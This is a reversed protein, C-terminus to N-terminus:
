PTLTRGVRVGYGLSRAVAGGAGRVASRVTSPVDYWSGGRVMRISCDGSTWASGDAPAGDYNGHYCDQVLEWANGVTDYLGFANSKYSGVPATKEGWQSGCRFCNANNTGIEDGWFYATTSGARAAYEWEAESLLRYTKGTMRSLWAVYTQADEWSVNIVPQKGGQFPRAASAAIGAMENRIRPDCDSKACADWEDFTLEFKAAAFPRAITVKHQPLENDDGQGVPSGMMFSGAPVMVMEPCDTCEKFIDMPKLAREQASKLVHGNVLMYIREKLWVEQWWGLLGSAFVVAVAGALAMTRRRRWTAGRRSEAIFTVAEETPEPASHPRAVIWREAEELLPSRLLMGRRHPRGATAWRRAMEGYESHKRIWDLDVQLAAALHDATADFRAADDFFIYHLSRLAEPVADSDVAECVVPAFRKNLTKGYNIEDLAVKSAVSNPSLVFVITDAKLILAKIRDWWKEFPAVGKSWDLLVIPDQRDMLPEFGRAKLAAELRDAFTMDRRSYSIFIKAKYRLDPAHAANAAM